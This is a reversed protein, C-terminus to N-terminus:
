ILHSIVQNDSPRFMNDEDIIQSGNETQHLRSREIDLGLDVLKIIVLM